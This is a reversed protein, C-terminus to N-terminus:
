IEDPKFAINYIVTGNIRGGIKKVREQENESIYIVHKSLKKVVWHFFRSWRNEPWMGRIHCVVPQSSLIVYWILSEHNVHIVDIWDSPDASRFAVRFADLWWPGIIFYLFSLFNHREGPRWGHHVSFTDYEFTAWSLLTALSRESGGKMHMGNVFLVKM